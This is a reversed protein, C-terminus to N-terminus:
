GYNRASDLNAYPCLGLEVARSLINQNFVNRFFALLVNLKYADQITGQIPRMFYPFVSPLNGTNAETLLADINKYRVALANVDFANLTPINLAALFQEFTTNNRTSHLTDIFNAVSLESVGDVSMFVEKQQYFLDVASHIMNRAVLFLIAKRIDSPITTVGITILFHLINTAITPGCQHNVCVFKFDGVKVLESGCVVCTNPLTLPVSVEAHQVNKIVLCGMHDIDVYIVDDVRLDFQNVYTYTADIENIAIDTYEPRIAPFISIRPNVSGDPGVCPFISTIRTRHISQNTQM